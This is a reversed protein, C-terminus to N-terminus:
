EAQKQRNPIVFEEIFNKDVNRHVTVRIYASDKVDFRAFHFLKAICDAYSGNENSLDSGGGGLTIYPIENPTGKNKNIRIYSHLHGQLVADVGYKEFLPVCAAAGRTDRSGIGNYFPIHFYVFTWPKTNKKLDSELWKYQESGVDLCESIDTTDDGETPYNTLAIFHVSGYDFSYYLKGYKKKYTWDQDNCADGLSLEDPYMQYPWNTYFYRMNNNKTHGDQWFDHNGLAVMVPVRSLIWMAKSRNDKEDINNNGKGFFRKNWNNNKPHYFNRAGNFVVDGTNIILRYRREEDRAMDALMKNMVSVYDEGGDRTDGFAYFSFDTLNDDSTYFSGEYFKDKHNANAHVYYYYRTNPSLTGPWWHKYWIKYDICGGDVRFRHNDMDQYNGYSDKSLGWKIRVKNIAKTTQMMVEMSTADNQYVPYPEKIVYIVETTSYDQEAGPQGFVSKSNILSSELFILLITVLTYSNLQVIKKM